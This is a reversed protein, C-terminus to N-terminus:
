GPLKFYIGCLFSQICLSLWVGLDLHGLKQCICILDDRVYVFWIMEELSMYVYVHIYEYVFCNLVRLTGLCLLFCLCFMKIIKICLNHHPLSYWRLIDTVFCITYKTKSLVRLWNLMLSKLEGPWSARQAIPTINQGDDTTRGRRNRPFWKIFTEIIICSPEWPSYM